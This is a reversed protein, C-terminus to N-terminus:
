PWVQSCWKWPCQGNRLIQIRSQHLLSSQHALGLFIVSSATAFSFASGASAFSLASASFSAKIMSTAMSYMRQRRPPRFCVFSAASACSFNDFAHLHWQVKSPGACPCNGTGGHCCLVSSESFPPLSTTSPPEAPANKQRAGPSPMPDNM